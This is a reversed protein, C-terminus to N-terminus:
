NVIKLKYRELKGTDTRPLDDVIHIIKPCMYKEHKNLIWQKLKTSDLKVDKFPVVFVEIDDIDDKGPKAIVAAQQIGNYNLLTDELESPNIYQGHIKITDSARGVYWFYDHEDQYCLDGTSVWKKFTKETWELDNFYGIGSNDSKVQLIGIQGQRVVINDTDVIRVDYGKTVTGLSSNSGNTNFIFCNLCETTGMINHIKQQSYNVWKQLIIDPLKDGASFCRAVLDITTDDVILQRYIIPVSFFATPNYTTLIRRVRAVNFIGPDIYAQAGQWMTGFILYNIGYAFFLKATSYIKDNPTINFVDVFINQTPIIANNHSHMVAKSHGSTGSTWLMFAVDTLSTGSHQTYPLLSAIVAIIQETSFTPINSKIVNSKILVTEALILKPTTHDIQYNLNNNKTRPNTMVAIGGVLVTALFSVVTDIKDFLAILVRDGPNIQQAVLWTAVCRTRHELEGYTITSNEEVYAIKDVNNKNRDFLIESLNTM